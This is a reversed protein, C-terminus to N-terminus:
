QKYTGTIYIYTMRGYGQSSTLSLRYRTAYVPSSVVLVDEAGATSTLVYSYSGLEVWQGNVDASLIGSMTRTSLKETCGVILREIKLPKEFTATFDGGGNGAYWSKQTGSFANWSEWGAVANTDQLALGFSPENSWTTASTMIPQVYPKEKSGGCVPRFPNPISM